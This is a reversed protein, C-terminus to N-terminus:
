RSAKCPIRWVGDLMVNYTILTSSANPVLSTIDMIIAGGAPYIMSPVPFIAQYPPGQAASVRGANLYGQPLPLNSFQRQNPDYLTISFDQTVLAGTGPTTIDAIRISMLEFDYQEMIQSIRTPTQGASYDVSNQFNLSYSYKVERYDYPTRHFIPSTGAAFRKVGMFAIYAYYVGSNNARSVTFLDFRISNNVDYLKEPVVPWCNPMVMGTTPSGNAYAGSANKLNFRGGNAATDVVNPVGLVRRLVFQSDGQLPLAIDNYNAGDALSTADYVYAFPYDVFGAPTVYPEEPFKM